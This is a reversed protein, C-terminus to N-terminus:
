DEWRYFYKPLDRINTSEDNLIAAVLNDVTIYWDIGEGVMMGYDTAKELEEALYAIHQMLGVMGGWRDPNYWDNFKPDQGLSMAILAATQAVRSTKRDDTIPPTTMLSEPSPSDASTNDGVM